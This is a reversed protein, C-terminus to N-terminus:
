STSTLYVHPTKKQSYKDIVMAKLHISYEVILQKTLYKFWKSSKEVNRFVSLAFSPDNASFKENM